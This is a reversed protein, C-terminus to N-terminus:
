LLHCTSILRRPHPNKPGCSRPPKSSSAHWNLSGNKTPLRLFKRFPLSYTSLITLISDWVVSFFSSLFPLIVKGDTNLIPGYNTGDKMNSLSLMLRCGKMVTSTQPAATSGTATTKTALSQDNDDKAALGRVHKPIPAMEAAHARAKGANTAAANEMELQVASLVKELEEEEEDDLSFVQFKSAAIYEQGRKIKPVHTAMASLNAIIIDHAAKDFKDLALDYWRAHDPSMEEFLGVNTDVKKGVPVACGGMLLCSGPLQCVVYETAEDANKLFPLVAPFSATATAKTFADGIYLDSDVFNDFEDIVLFSKFVDPTVYKPKIVRAYDSTNGVIIDRIVGNSDNLKAAVGCIFPVARRATTIVVFGSFGEKSQKTQALSFRKSDPM